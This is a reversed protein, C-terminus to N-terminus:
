ITKKYKNKKGKINKKRLLIGSDYKGKEFM